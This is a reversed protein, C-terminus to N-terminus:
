IRHRAIGRAADLVVKPDSNAFVADELRPEVIERQIRFLNPAWPWPQASRLQLIAVEDNPHRVYHGESRLRDIASQTVPMYGTRTAWEITSDPEAMFRLFEYAGEKEDDPAGRLVVFFTGGTPVSERVGKPLPAARVPFTANEELYRLFATSTWIMPTRGALFDQNTANWANYDRGAPPRMVRHVHVLDQWFRLARVGADGGLTPDGGEVISGGAQGVLAVWFWWSIPVEYGWRDKTTLRKAVDILEEWTRPTEFGNRDQVAGNVLM